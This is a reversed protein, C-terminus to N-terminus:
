PSVACSFTLADFMDYQQELFFQMAAAETNSLLATRIGQSQLRRALAFVDRRPAYVAAFAEGWLSPAEPEPRGLDKCVRQWFAAESIRGKQFPAAHRDHATVYDEVSVGLAEACFAMLGSAPNDILVGGWDFLVAAIPETM